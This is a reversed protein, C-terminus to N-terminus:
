AWTVRNELGSSSRYMILTTSSVLSQLQKAIDM